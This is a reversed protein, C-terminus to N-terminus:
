VQVALGYPAVVALVLREQEEAGLQEQVVVAVVTSM